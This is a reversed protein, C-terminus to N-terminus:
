MLTVIYWRFSIIIGEIMREIMVTQKWSSNTFSTSIYQRYIIITESYDLIIIRRNTNNTALMYQSYQAVRACRMSRMVADRGAGGVKGSMPLPISKM